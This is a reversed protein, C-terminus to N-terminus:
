WFVKASAPFPEVQLACVVGLGTWAVEPLARSPTDHLEDDVHVAIPM